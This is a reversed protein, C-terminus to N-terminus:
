KLIKMGTPSIIYIVSLKKCHTNIQYYLDEQKSQIVRSSFSQVVCLSGLIIRLFQLQVSLFLDNKLDRSLGKSSLFSLSFLFVDFNVNRHLLM